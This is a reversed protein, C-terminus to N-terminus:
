FPRFKASHKKDRHCGGEEVPPEIGVTFLSIRGVDIYGSWQEPIRENPQDEQHEQRPQYAAYCRERNIKAIAKIAQCAAQDEASSQSKADNHCAKDIRLM